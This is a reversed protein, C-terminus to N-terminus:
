PDIYYVVDTITENTTWLIGGVPASITVYVPRGGLEVNAVADGILQSAFTDTVANSCVIGDLLYDVDNATTGTWYGSGDAGALGVDFTQGGGMASVTISGGVIMSNAPIKALYITDNTHATTSTAYTFYKAMVRGDYSQDVGALQDASYNAAHASGVLAILIFLVFKKM